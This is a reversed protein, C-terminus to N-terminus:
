TYNARQDKHIDYKIIAEFLKIPTPFSYFIEHLYHHLFPAQKSQPKSKPM